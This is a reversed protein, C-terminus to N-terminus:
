QGGTTLVDKRYAKFRESAIIKNAAKAQIVTVFQQRWPLVEQLEKQLSVRAQGEQAEDTHCVFALPDVVEDNLFIDVKVLKAEQLPPDGEFTSLSGM